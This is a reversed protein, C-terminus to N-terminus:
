ASAMSEPASVVGGPGASPAHAPRGPVTATTAARRAPRTPSPRGPHRRRDGRTAAPSTQPRTEDRRFGAQDTPSRCPSTSTAPRAATRAPAASSAFGSGKATRSGGRPYPDPHHAPSRDPGEGRVHPLYTASEQRNPHRLGPLDQPHDATALHDRRRHGRAPQALVRLHQRAFRAVQRGHDAQGDDTLVKVAVMRDVEPDYARRVQGFGGAGIPEVWEYRGDLVARGACSGRRTRAAGRPVGCPYGDRWEPRARDFGDQCVRVSLWSAPRLVRCTFSAGPVFGTVGRGRHAASCEPSNGPMGAPGASRPFGATLPAGGRPRGIAGSLSCAGGSPRGVAM